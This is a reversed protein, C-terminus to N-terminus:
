SVAIFREVIIAGKHVRCEEISHAFVIDLNRQFVNPFEVRMDITVDDARGERRMRAHHEHSENLFSKPISPLPLLDSAM